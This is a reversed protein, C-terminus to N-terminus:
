KEFLHVLYKPPLLPWIRRDFLDRRILRYHFNYAQNFRLSHHMVYNGESLKQAVAASDAEYASPQPQVYALEELISQWCSGWGELTPMTTPQASAIFLNVLTDLAIVSDRVLALNVRVYNGRTGTYEFPVNSDQENLWGLEALIRERCQATDTGLHVPGFVDQFCWKYVDALQALPYRRMYAQLQSRVPNPAQYASADIKRLISRAVKLTSVRQEPPDPLPHQLAFAREFVSLSDNFARIRLTDAHLVANIAETFFRDWRQQYYSGVLGGWLRNAYDNLVPGGWTTLLTAAEQDFYSQEAKGRGWRQADRCWQYFDFPPLTLLLDDVDQMLEDAVQQAQEMLGIQRSRYAETFANRVWMFQNGMWQSLLNAVDYAYSQRRSPKSMLLRIAALLSDNSYSYFPKTYYTGHGDFSPRAVMQTGLGYFSGDRYIQSNLQRWAIRASDATRGFRMDAYHDAWRALRDPTWRATDGKSQWPYEFLFDYIQPSCDFGELTSGIGMLNSGAEVMAKDLKEALEHLNGVLMTNGGFNGLYCWIFPQGYFGQSTRWVETNECFYDLMIMRGQPVATLYSQLREPTWQNRKYYFVWGMQLWRAQDDICHMSNYIHRSLSALYSPEWSPPDMENFPDACYIHDSGYAENQATLFLEQIHSFLPDSSNLFYTPEFGCWPSLRQVEAEPHQRAIQRPIHGAFAPLVPTMGLERERKLIKQQLKKQGDIWSQPLPGGFGDLNAMRHWPLHAPGSFYARISDDSMGMQRWVQQWVAEQGTLALPMNIGNLAMWDIFHEWEDWQWWPLSYGFTCYNLFFRTSTKAALTVPRKVRPLNTPVEVKLSHHWSLAVHAYHKLYYGLGMALSNDSNAAICVQKGRQILSFYDGSFPTNLSDDIEFIFNEAYDGLVRKALASVAEQAKSPSIVLFSFLIAIILHYKKM